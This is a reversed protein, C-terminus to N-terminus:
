YWHGDSQVSTFVYFGTEFWDTFGQTLEVTEHEAHNTPLVGDVTTKSGAITFNSHLEVMTNGPPVVDAGYVQIEYNDQASSIPLGTALSLFVVVAPALGRLTLRAPM